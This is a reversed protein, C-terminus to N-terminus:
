CRWVCLIQQRTYGHALRPADAPHHHVSMTILALITPAPLLVRHVLPANVPREPMLAALEASECCKHDLCAPCTEKSVIQHCSQRANGPQAFVTASAGCRLSPVIALYGALLFRPVTQMLTVM